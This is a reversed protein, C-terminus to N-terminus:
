ERRDMGKVEEAGGGRKDGTRELRRRRMERRGGAGERTRQQTIRESVNHGSLRRSFRAQPAVISILEAHKLAATQDASLLHWRKGRGRGSVRKNM